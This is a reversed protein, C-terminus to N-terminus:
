FMRCTVFKCYTQLTCSESLRMVALHPVPLAERQPCGGARQPCQPVQANETETDSCAYLLMVDSFARGGRSATHRPSVETRRLSNTDGQAKQM